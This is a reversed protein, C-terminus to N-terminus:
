FPIDDEEMEDKHSTDRGQKTQQQTERQIPELERANGLIAGKIGQEREEKSVDQVIMHTDDYQSNQTPLLTADLYVGKKGKFLRKKDIKTVDINIRIINSM